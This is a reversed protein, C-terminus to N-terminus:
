IGDKVYVTNILGPSKIVSSINEDEWYNSLNSLDCNKEKVISMAESINEFKKCLNFATTSYHNNNPELIKLAGKFEYFLEEKYGSPNSNELSQPAAMGYAEWRYLGGYYQKRFENQPMSNTAKNLEDLENAVETKLTAWLGKKYHQKKSQLINLNLKGERYADYIQGSKEIHEIPILKSIFASTQPSKLFLESKVRENMKDPCYKLTNEAIYKNPVSNNIPDFGLEVLKEFDRKENFIMDYSENKHYSLVEPYVKIVEKLGEWFKEDAFTGILSANPIEIKYLSEKLTKLDKAKIVKRTFSDPLIDLERAQKSGLENNYEYIYEIDTKDFQEGIISKYKGLVGLERGSPKIGLSVAAKVVNENKVHFWDVVAGNKLLALSTEYSFIDTIEVRNDDNELEIHPLLEEEGYRIFDGGSLKKDKFYPLWSIVQKSTTSKYESHTTKICAASLPMEIVQKNKIAFEIYHPVNYYRLHKWVEKDGSMIFAEKAKQHDSQWMSSLIEGTIGHQIMFEPDIDIMWAVNKEDKLESLSKDGVYEKFFDADKILYLCKEFGIKEECWQLIEKDKALAAKEALWKRDCKKNKKFQKTGYTVAMKIDESYRLTKEVINFMELSLDDVYIDQKNYFYKVAEINNEKIYHQVISASAITKLPRDFRNLENAWYCGQEDKIEIKDFIPAYFKNTRCKTLAKASPKHFKELKKWIEYVRIGANKHALALFIEQAHAETIQNRDKLKSVEDEVDYFDYYYKPKQGRLEARAGVLNKEGREGKGIKALFSEM